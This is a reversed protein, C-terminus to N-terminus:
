KANSGKLANLAAAVSRAADPFPRLADVITMRIRDWNPSALIQRESVVLGVGTLPGLKVLIGAQKELLAARSVPDIELNDIEATLRKYRALLLDAERETVEATAREIEDDEIPAQRPTTPPVHLEEWSEFSPGGNDAMRKRQLDGPSVRGGIWGMVTGVKVGCFNAWYGPGRPDKGLEHAGKSKEGL